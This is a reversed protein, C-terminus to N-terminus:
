EKAKEVKDRLIRINPIEAEKVTYDSPVEFLTKAPEGRQINTLKYTTEGVRPDKHITMVLAHLEPSYWRESVIEISRENGIEGAPIVHVTRTGEAMVGEINRKGLSEEKGAHKKEIRMMAPADEVMMGEPGSVRIGAMPRTVIVDAAAARTGAAMPTSSDSQIMFGHGKMKRATKSKHDLTLSTNSMPDHIFSTKPADAGALPGFGAFTADRRTRGEGDRAMQSSNRHVIRNGDSLTQVTETVAEATYPANKVVQGSIGFESQVFEVTHARIGQVAPGPVRVEFRENGPQGLAAVAGVALLITCRTM